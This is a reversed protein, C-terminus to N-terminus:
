RGQLLRGRQCVRCRAAATRGIGGRALTLSDATYAAGGRRRQALLRHAAAAVRGRSLAAPRRAAAAAGGEGAADLGYAADAGGGGRVAELGPVAGGGRGLGWRRAPTARASTIITTTAIAATTAVATPPGGHDGVAGGWGSPGAPSAARSPAPSLPRYTGNSVKADAAEPLHTNLPLWRPATSPHSTSTLDPRSCIKLVLFFISLHYLCPM